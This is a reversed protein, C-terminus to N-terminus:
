PEICVMRKSKLGFYAKGKKGFCAKGDVDQKVRSNYVHGECDERKCKWGAIRGGKELVYCGKKCIRANQVHTCRMDPPFLYSQIKITKTSMDNLHKSEFCDLNPNTDDPKITYTHGNKPYTVPTRTFLTPLYKPPPRKPCRVELTYITTHWETEGLPDFVTNHPMTRHAVLINPKPAKCFRSKTIFEARISRLPAILLTFHPSLLQYLPFDNSDLAPPYCLTRSM